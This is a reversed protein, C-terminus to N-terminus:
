ARYRQWGRGEHGFHFSQPHFIEALIELSEVLRPGPRNFYHNGDTLYVRGERVARLTAWGPQRTLTPMESRSREIDFGCPLIVMIDPDSAWLDDWELWPSDQGAAGFLNIGGAMDVLEPMWNGAAMLPDIWEVLAVTPKNPLARAREAIGNMRQRMEDVKAAGRESSGLADAVRQIDAFVDELANPELSVLETPTNLGERIVRQVEELSVACVECLAQTVIIDPKLDNLVDEHVRYVSVTDRLVAKVREDIERSSGNLELRAETLVPLNLVSPPYDCEHSRGVLDAEFGLACVIETASPILSVIRPM